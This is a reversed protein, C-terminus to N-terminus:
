SESIFAISFSFLRRFFITASSSSSLSIRFSLRSKKFGLTQGCLLQTLGDNKCLLRSRWRPRTVKAADLADGVLPIRRESGKTKVRRHANSRIWIHPVKHDLLVDSADLGGIELPRAGTLKLMLYMRRIDDTLRPANAFYRDM